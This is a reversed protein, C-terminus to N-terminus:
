EYLAKHDAADWGTPIWEGSYEDSMGDPVDEVLLEGAELRSLIVDAAEMADDMTDYLPSLIIGGVVMRLMKSESEQVIDASIVGSETNREVRTAFQNGHRDM